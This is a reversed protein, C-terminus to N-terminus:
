RQLVVLPGYLPYTPQLPHPPHHPLTPRQLCTLGEKLVIQVPRLDLLNWRYTWVHKSPRLSTESGCHDMASGHRGLLARWLDQQRLQSNVHNAFGLRSFCVLQNELIWHCTALSEFKVTALQQSTITRIKILSNENIQQSVKNNVILTDYKDTNCSPKYVWLLEFIGWTTCCFSYFLHRSRNLCRTGFNNFEVFMLITTM